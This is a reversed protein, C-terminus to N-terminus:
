VRERCSARGIQGALDIVQLGPLRQNGMDDIILAILPATSPATDITTGAQEAAQPTRFLLVAIAAIVLLSKSRIAVRM